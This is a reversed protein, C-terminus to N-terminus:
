AHQVNQGISLNIKNYTTFPSKVNNHDEAEGTKLCVQLTPRVATLTYLYIPGLSPTGPYALYYLLIYRSLLTERLWAACCFISSM